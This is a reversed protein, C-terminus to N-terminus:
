VDVCVHDNLRLRVVDSFVEHISFVINGPSHAHNVGLLQGFSSM